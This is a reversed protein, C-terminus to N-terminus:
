GDYATRTTAAWDTSNEFFGIGTTAFIQRLYGQSTREAVDESRAVYARASRSDGTGVLPKGAGIGTWERWQFTKQPEDIEWV